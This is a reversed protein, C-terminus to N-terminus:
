VRVGELWRGLAKWDASVRDIGGKNRGNRGLNGTHAQCVVRTPGVEFPAELASALNPVAAHGTAVRLANFTALGLCIALRPRIASLQPLAFEQGARVLATFPIGASLNGLKIFPFLNTSYTDRLELGLHTRLLSILNRNTPLSPTYGLRVVEPDPPLLLREHSSWDQLFVMVNADLNHASKSYPSVYDCEFIGQHYDGIRGYGAYPDRRRRDVLRAIESLRSDISM